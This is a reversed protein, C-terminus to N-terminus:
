KRETSLLLRSRVDALVHSNRPPLPVPHRVDHVSNYHSRGHYSLKIPVVDKVLEEEDFHTKMPELDYSEARFIQIPRDFLEELARIELDDAWEGPRSMRQLYDDFNDVCFVAFRNKHKRMHDICRRRLEVHRRDSSYMQDCVARFLCNGDGQVDVVILGRERMRDRFTLSAAMLSTDRRPVTPSSNTRRISRHSSHTTSAIRNSSPAVNVYSPRQTTAAPVPQYTSSTYLAGNLLQTQATVSISTSDPLARGTRSGYPQVRDPHEQVDIEEDWRSDWGEYHIKVLRGGGSVAIVEAPRWKATLKGTSKSRYYDEVDVRDGVNFRPSQGGVDDYQRPAEGSHLWRRVVGEQEPTLDQGATASHSDLLWPPALRRWHHDLTLTIDHSSSWGDFNIRAMMGGGIVDVVTAPRWRQMQQGTYKSVFQDLCLLQLGRRVHDFSLAADDAFEQSLKGSGFLCVLSRDVTTHAHSFLMWSPKIM